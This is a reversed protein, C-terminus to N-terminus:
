DGQVFIHPSAFEFNPPEGFQLYIQWRQSWVLLERLKFQRIHLMAEPARLKFQAPGPVAEFQGGQWAEDAPNPAM